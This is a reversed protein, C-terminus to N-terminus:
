QGSYNIRRQMKKIHGEFGQISAGMSDEIRDLERGVEKRSVYLRNTPQIHKIAYWGKYTIKHWIM